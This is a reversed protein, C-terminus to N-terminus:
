GIHEGGRSASGRPASSVLKDARDRWSEGLANTHPDPCRQPAPLPSRPFTSRELLGDVVEPYVRGCLLKERATIYASDVRLHRMLVLEPQKPYTLAFYCLVDVSRSM